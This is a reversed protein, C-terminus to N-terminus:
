YAKAYLSNLIQPLALLLCSPFPTTLLSTDQISSKPATKWKKGTLPSVGLHESIRTHVHRRTQGVYLAGCQCTYKYVVRSRLFKSNRYCQIHALWPTVNMCPGWFMLSNRGQHSLFALSSCFGADLFVTVICSVEGWVVVKGDQRSRARGWVKFM